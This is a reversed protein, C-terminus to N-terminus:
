SNCQLIDILRGAMAQAYSPPLSSQAESATRRLRAVEVELARIRARLRENELRLEYCRFM